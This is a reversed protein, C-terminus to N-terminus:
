NKTKEKTKWIHSAYPLADLSWVGKVGNVHDSVINKFWNQANSLYSAYTRDVAPALLVTSLNYM